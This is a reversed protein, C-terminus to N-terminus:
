EDDEVFEYDVFIDTEDRKMLDAIWVAIRDQCVDSPGTDCDLITIILNLNTM